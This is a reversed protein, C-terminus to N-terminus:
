KLQVQGSDLNLSLMVAPFAKGLDFSYTKEEAQVKMKTLTNMLLTEDTEYWVSLQIEMLDQAKGGYVYVQDHIGDMWSIYRSYYKWLFPIDSFSDYLFYTSGRLKGFLYSAVAIYNQQCHVTMFSGNINTLLQWEAGVEFESLYESVSFGKVLNAYRKMINDHRILLFKYDQNALSFWTTQLNKRPAGNMFVDIYPEREEPDEYVSRPLMTWCENLAPLLIRVTNCQHKVKLDSLIKEIGAINEIHDANISTRIDFNFNVCGIYVLTNNEEPKNVAYLLQHETFCIGICADSEAM